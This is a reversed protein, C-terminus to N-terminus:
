GILLELVGDSLMFKKKNALMGFFEKCDEPEWDQFEFTNTFRSKLGANSQLMQDIEYPYGAIVIVVDNFQESTMAQVITDCAEKGFLGMGLNYAEDILLVGGKAENLLEKVKTKTQGVYDGTLDLASTEVIKDSPLLGLSFLMSAITRAVTTKGTGPNGTLVFHGLHPKEDGDQKSVTLTKKMKELKAKVKEMRYLADLQQLPDVNKQARATGPDDIDIDELIIKGSLSPGLREVARLMAGRVLM